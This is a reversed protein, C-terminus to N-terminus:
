KVEYGILEFDGDAKEEYIPYVRFEDCTYYEGNWDTNGLERDCWEGLANVNENSPNERVAKILEEYTKM